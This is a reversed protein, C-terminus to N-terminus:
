GRDAGTNWLAATVAQVTECPYDECSWSSCVTIPTVVCDPCADFDERRLAAWARHTNNDPNHTACNQSNISSSYSPHHIAILARILAALAGEACGCPGDDLAPHAGCMPHHRVNTEASVDILRQHVQSAADHM